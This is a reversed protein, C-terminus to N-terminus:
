KLMALNKQMTEGTKNRADVTLGACLDETYKMKPLM